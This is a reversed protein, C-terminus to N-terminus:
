GWYSASAPDANSGSFGAAVQVVKLILSWPATRGQDSATGRLRYVGGTAQNTPVHISQCTWGVVELMPNGLARRVPASLDSRDLAPAASSNM